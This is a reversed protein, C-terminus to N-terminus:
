DTQISTEQNAAKRKVEEEEKEKEKEQELKLKAEYKARNAEMRQQHEEGKKRKKEQAAAKAAAQDESSKVEVEQKFGMVSEFLTRINFKHLSLYSSYVAIGCLRKFTALFLCPSLHVRRNLSRMDITAIGGISENM